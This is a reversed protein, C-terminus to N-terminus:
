LQLRGGNEHDYVVQRHPLMAGTLEWVLGRQDSTNQVHLKGDVLSCDYKPNTSELRYKIAEM